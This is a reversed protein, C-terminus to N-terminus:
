RARAIKAEVAKPDISERDGGLALKWAAVAELRKGAAWLVDGYHEQVVSNAPAQEAARRLLPEARDFRKQKFFAWGLSDLYAGNDPDIALAREVLSVAEDLREGREALMYGLYNLSPAHLPDRALAERFAAEAGTYDKRQELLAGRQFPVSIESPFRTAAQSLVEDAEGARKAEQLVEALTLHAEVDGDHAALADRMVVVARDGKGARALARAELQALRLDDPRRQRAARALDAAKDFQRALLHAQVLATDFGGGSSLARAREFTAIAATARGAQLEAYGLHAVLTLLERPPEAAASLRDVAPALVDAAKAFLRQDELVQALAFPGMPGDPAAAILRRATAEAAPFDRTRREATSLLYLARTDAPAAAIVTRLLGRAQEFAETAETQLLASAWRVRADTSGPNMQALREYTAAAETWRQQREYLEALSALLRPSGSAADELAEVARDPRGLATEARALLVSAEAVDPQYELLRRLVRAAEEPKGANLYLRGLTLDVGPDLNAGEHRRARELHEVARRSAEAQSIVPNKSESDALAAFVSGLVRNAELNDADVAIAAEAATRAEDFRGQRAYVAALEAPLDASTPDLRAARQHAAIAAEIEGDNELSRGLLFEYYAEAQRPSPPQAAAPGSWVVVLSAIALLFTRVTISSQEM